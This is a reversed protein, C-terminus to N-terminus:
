GMQNIRETLKASVADILKTLQEDGEVMIQGLVTGILETGDCRLENLRCRRLQLKGQIESNTGIAKNVQRYEADTMEVDITTTEIGEIKLTVQGVCLNREGRQGGNVYCQFEYKVKGADLAKLTKKVAPMAKFARIAREKLVDHHDPVPKIQAELAKIEATLRTVERHQLAAIIDKRTPKM